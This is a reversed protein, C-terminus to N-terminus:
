ESAPKAISALVWQNVIVYLVFVLLPKGNSAKNDNSQMNQFLGALMAVRSDVLVAIALDVYPRQLSHLIPNIWTVQALCFLCVVLHSYSILLLCVCDHTRCLITAVVCKRGNWIAAMPHATQWLPLHSPLQEQPLISFKHLCTQQVLIVKYVQWHISFYSYLFRLFVLM